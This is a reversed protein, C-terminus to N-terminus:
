IEIIGRRTALVVAHTRDRAQLKASVSRMHTKVTEEAVRLKSGIERNSFGEAVHSLVERERDSLPETLSGLAVATAIEPHVYQRGAHVMRIAEALQERPSAKPLYGSAGSRLAKAALADGNCNTLMVVRAPTNETRIAKLTEIGGLGPLRQDVLIVDPAMARFVKLAEPGSQVKGVVMMDPQGAVLLVVGDLYLPKEVAILVRIARPDGMPRYRAAIRSVPEM